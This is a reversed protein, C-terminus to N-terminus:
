TEAAEMSPDLIRLGKSDHVDYCISTDAFHQLSRSVLPVRLRLLQHTQM